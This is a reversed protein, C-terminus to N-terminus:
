ILQLSYKLFPLGSGWRMRVNLQLGHIVPSATLKFGTLVGGRRKWGIGWGGMLLAQAGRQGELCALGARSGHTVANVDGVPERGEQQRVAHGHAHRGDCNINVKVWWGGRCGSMSRTRDESGRALLDVGSQLM